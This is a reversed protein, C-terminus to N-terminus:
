LTSQPGVYGLAFAGLVIHLQLEIPESTTELTLVKPVGEYTTKEVVALSLLRRPPLRNKEPYWLVKNVQM